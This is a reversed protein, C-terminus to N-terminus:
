QQHFMFCAARESPCPSELISHSIRWGLCFVTDPSFFTFVCKPVFVQEPKLSYIFYWKQVFHIMYQIVLNKCYPWSWSQHLLVTAVYLQHPWKVPSIYLFYFCHIVIRTEVCRIVIVFLSSSLSLSTVSCQDGRLSRPWQGRDGSPFAQDSQLQSATSLVRWKSRTGARVGCAGACPAALWPLTVHHLEQVHAM